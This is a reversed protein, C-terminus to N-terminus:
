GYRTSNPVRVALTRLVALRWASHMSPDFHVTEVGADLQSLYYIAIVKQDIFM